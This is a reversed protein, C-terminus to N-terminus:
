VFYDEDVSRLVYVQRARVGVENAIMLRALRQGDILIIRQQVRDAYQRAESSFGSTTVFVGKSAGMGGLSGVFQQIAPRGITSEPAYRKAQIYVQDLGLPDENIVGDVGGDGPGGIHLGANEDEGGYGMRQLLEVILKEFRTPTLELVRAIVDEVLAEELENFAQEIVDEPTQDSASIPHATGGKAAADSRQDSSRAQWERYGELSKLTEMDLRDPKEALLRRGQDTAAFVNQRLTRVLGARELYIKAWSLRNTLRSQRGGALMEG